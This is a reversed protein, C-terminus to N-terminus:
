FNKVFSIGHSHFKFKLFSIKFKLNTVSETIVRSLIVSSVFVTGVFELLFLLRYFVFNAYKVQM